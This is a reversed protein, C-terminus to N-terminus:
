KVETVNSDCNLEREKEYHGRSALRNKSFVDDLKFNHRYRYMIKQAKIGTIRSWETATHTEGHYTIKLNQRKNNCQEVWTAWRCNEPCYDGNVDIRDITLKDNYGNEYAWTRFLSYDQLWESCIKIGRKGYNEYNMDNPNYCRAKMGFWITYLREQSRLRIGKYNRRTCGCSRLKKSFLYRIETDHLNGCECQCRAVVRDRENRGIIDTILLKGYKEGIHSKYFDIDKRKPM